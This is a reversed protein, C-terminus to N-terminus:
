HRGLISRNRTGPEVNLTLFFTKLIVKLLSPQFWSGQRGATAQLAFVPVKSGQVKFRKVWTKYIRGYM